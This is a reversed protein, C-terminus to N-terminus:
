WTSLSFFTISQTERNHKSRCFTKFFYLRVELLQVCQIHADDRKKKKKYCKRSTWNYHMGKKTQVKPKYKLTAGKNFKQFIKVYLTFHLYLTWLYFSHKFLYISLSISLYIILDKLFYLHPNLYVDVLHRYFNDTSPSWIAFWIKFNQPFFCRRQSM